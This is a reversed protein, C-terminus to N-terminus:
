DNNFINDRMRHLKHHLKFITYYKSLHDYVLDKLGVSCPFLPFGQHSLPRHPIKRERAFSPSVKRSKAVSVVKTRALHIHPLNM